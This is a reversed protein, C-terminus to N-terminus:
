KAPARAKLDEFWNLVVHIQAPGPASQSQGATGVSIIRGDPMPMVDFTRPFGPAAVGFGRPVAIPRTFAFSPATTVTVSMFQTPSPVFFLEKGDRSWSPRGGRM